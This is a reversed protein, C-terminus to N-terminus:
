KRNVVHLIWVFLKPSFNVLRIKKENKKSANHVSLPLLKLMSLEKLNAKRSEYDYVATNTLFSVVGHAIMMEYWSLIREKNSPSLMANRLVEM